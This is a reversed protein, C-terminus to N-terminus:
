AFRREQPYQSFLEIHLEVGRNQFASHLDVEMRPGTWVPEPAPSADQRNKSSRYELKERGHRDRQPNFSQKRPKPAAEPPAANESTRRIQQVRAEVEYVVRLNEYYRVVRANADAYQRTFTRRVSRPALDNAHLNALRVGMLNLTLSISFFAMAAILAMRPEFITRRLLVVAPRQRFPVSAAPKTEAGANGFRAWRPQEPPFGSAPRTDPIPNHIPFSDREPSDADPEMPVGVMSTRALIRAVLDAPPEPAAQRLMYLWEHGRLAQTLKERCAPCDDAHHRIQDAASGSLKQESFEVLRAEVM